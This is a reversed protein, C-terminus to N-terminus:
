SGFNAEVLYRSEINEISFQTQDDQIGDLSYLHSQSGSQGVPDRVFVAREAINIGLAEVGAEVM